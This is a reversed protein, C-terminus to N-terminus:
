RVFQDRDDLAARVVREVLDPLRGFTWASDAREYLSHADHGWPGLHVADLDLAAAAEIPLRYERGLSPLHPAIAAAPEARWSVYCADSIFPFWPRSEVGAAELAARTRAAFRSGGPAAHPYFPPLLHIVAAPGELRALAALRRLRALTAERPDPPPDELPDAGPALGARAVLDPYRLVAPRAVADREWAGAGGALRRGLARMSDGVEALAERVCRELRALTDALPRGLTLLNLEVVAERATQVDYRPKLDRARLVAAPGGQAAGARDVLREDVAARAAIAAALQAADAGEFPAAAHTPRGLVWVAALLKGRVGHWAVPEESYDLSLAGVLDLGERERLRALEGVAHRMGESAHEEDPTAVLLAGGGAAPSAALRALAEVGVALGSKMDLAGRGFLWSGPHLRERELDRALRPEDPPREAARALLRERLAPPDFALATSGARDLAAFEDVGVTDVHGLLLVTRPGGGPVHAWVCPRGDALPWTGHRAGAPLLGRLIEACRAEGAPDPSVSPVAVLREALARVRGADTEFPM